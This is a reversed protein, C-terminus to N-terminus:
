RFYLEPLGDRYMITRGDIKRIYVVAYYDMNQPSTNWYADTDASGWRWLELRYCGDYQSGQEAKRNLKFGYVVTQLKDEACPIYEGSKFFDPYLYENSSRTANPNPIHAKVIKFESHTSPYVLMRGRIESFGRPDRYDISITEEYSILYPLPFGIWGFYVAVGAAVIVVALVIALVKKLAPKKKPKAAAPIPPEKALAPAPPPVPAADLKAGCEPCYVDDAELPYNCKPCNM